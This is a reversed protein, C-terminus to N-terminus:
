IALNKLRGCPFTINESADTQERPLSVGQVSVGRRRFLSVGGPCVVGDWPGLCLSDGQCLGGPCLSRGGGMAWQALLWANVFCYSRPKKWCKNTYRFISLFHLESPIVTIVLETDNNLLYLDPVTLEFM